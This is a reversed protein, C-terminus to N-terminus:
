TSCRPALECAVAQGLAQWEGVTGVGMAWVVAVVDKLVVVGPLRELRAAVSPILFVAGDAAQAALVYPEPFGKRHGTGVLGLFGDPLNEM